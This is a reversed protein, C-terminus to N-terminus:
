RNSLAIRRRIENRIFEAIEREMEEMDTDSDLHNKNDVLYNYRKKYELILANGFFILSLIVWWLGVRIGWIFGTKKDSFSDMIFGTLFPALFYGLLNFILQSLSSSTAQKDKKVCSIMIGTGIPVIMAGFFLFSWLLVTIYVFSFLFGLPFAFIFSIFGFSCCMQIAKYTNKGKYGGYSDSIIGGVIIGFLPATITTISFSIIVLLPNAQIIDILYSTMWFQITTVIFYITCLGMTILIYLPNSLIEISQQIFISCSNSNKIPVDDTYFLINNNSNKINNKNTYNIRETNNINRKDSKKINLEFHFDNRQSQSKDLFEFNKNTKFNDNEISINIDNNNELFLLISIPILLIGQITVVIRWNLIHNFFNIVVGSVIYGTIMGFITCSHLFGMWLTSKNKPSYNNVWVPGYIVLFAETMGMFFRATFLILKNNTKAFVFCSIANLILMLACINKAGYNNFFFSTFLSSFSLGLYVLSGLLAQETYDLNIEKIIELLSAPIVGSDYNLLLNASLFLLFIRTNKNM